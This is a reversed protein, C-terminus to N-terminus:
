IEWRMDKGRYECSSSKWRKNSFFCFFLSKIWSLFVCVFLMGAHVRQCKPWLWTLTHNPSTTSDRILTTNGTHTILSSLRLASSPTVAPSLLPVAILAKRFAEESVRGWSICVCLQALMCVCASLNVTLMCNIHACECLRACWIWSICVSVGRDRGNLGTWQWLLPDRSVVPLPVCLVCSLMDWLVPKTHTQTQIYDMQDEICLVREMRM